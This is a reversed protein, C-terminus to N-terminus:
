ELCHLILPKRLLHKADQKTAWFYDFLM